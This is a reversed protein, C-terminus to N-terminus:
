LTKPELGFPPALGSWLNPSKKHKLHEDWTNCRYAENARRSVLIVYSVCIVMVPSEIFVIM